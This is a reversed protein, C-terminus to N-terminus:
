IIEDAHTTSNYAAFYITDPQIAPFGANYKGVAASFAYFLVTNTTTDVATQMVDQTGISKINQISTGVTRQTSSLTGVFNLEYFNLNGPAYPHFPGGTATQESGGVIWKPLQAKLGTSLIIFVLLYKLKSTM